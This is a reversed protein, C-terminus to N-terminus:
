VVDIGGLIATCLITVQPAVADAPLSAAKNDVGGLIPTSKVCVRVNRPPRIDIGGMVTTVHIVIDRTVVAESFDLEIGGMVAVLKAGLLDQCANKTEIGSMVATYEPNNSFDPMGNMQKMGGGMNPPCHNPVPKGGRIFHIILNVGVMVVILAVILMGTRVGRFLDQQWCFLILGVGLWTINSTRFGYTVINVLAPIIIFLTWWGDFFVDFDWAGFAAGAYAVGVALLLIGVVLAGISRKKM